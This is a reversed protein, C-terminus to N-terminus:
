SIEYDTRGDRFLCIMENTLSIDDFSEQIGPIDERRVWWAAALEEEDMHITGCGDLECFYGLLLTESFGWPQSKYYRINKVRLGAEEMVERAVTEEATEGIETYGAILAYKTYTRGAYKTLLLSDGNTVAVIVAPSIRPYVMNGCSPCRVMRERHDREMGHGCCGCYQNRKYWNRIHVATIGAFALHKPTLSRFQGPLVFRYGEGELRAAEEDGLDEPHLFYRQEDMSFLYVYDEEAGIVSPYAIGQDTDKILIKGDKVYFCVSREDPQQETYHNNFRHPRIDQIM